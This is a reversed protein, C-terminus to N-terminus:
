TENQDTVISENLNLSAKPEGIMRKSKINKLDIKVLPNNNGSLVSQNLNSSAIGGVMQKKLSAVEEEMQKKLQKEEAQLKVSIKSDFMNDPNSSVRTNYHIKLDEIEVLKQSYTNLIHEKKEEFEKETIKSVMPKGM